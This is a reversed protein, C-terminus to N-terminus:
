RLGFMGIPRTTHIGSIIPVENRLLSDRWLFAKEIFHTLFDAVKEGNLDRTHLKEFLVLHDSKQSYAFNGWRPYPLGNAKLAERFTEERFRGNSIPGLDCGIILYDNKSDLELQIELGGKLRILCSNNKDPHLDHVPIIETHGLEQLISEFLNTVM